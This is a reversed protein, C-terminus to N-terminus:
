KPISSSENKATAEIVADTISIEQGREQLLLRMMAEGSYRNGAAAKVVSETISIEKGREQLLLRM